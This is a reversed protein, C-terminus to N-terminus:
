NHKMRYRLTMMRVGAAMWAVMWLVAFIFGPIYSKFAKFGLLMVGFVVPGYLLFLAIFINRTKHYTQSLSTFSATPCTSAKDSNKGYRQLKKKRWRSIGSAPM